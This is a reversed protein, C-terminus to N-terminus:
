CAIFPAGAVMKRPAHAGGSGHPGCRVRPNSHGVCRRAATAPGPRDHEPEGDDDSEAGAGEEEEGAAVIFADAQPVHLTVLFDADEVGGNEGAMFIGNERGAERAIAFVNDGGAAIARRRELGYGKDVWKRVADRLQQQDDSFDFDM